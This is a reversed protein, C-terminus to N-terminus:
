QKVVKRSEFGHDNQLNISYVGAAFRSFDIRTIQETSNVEAVLKGTFDTVTIRLNENSGLDITLENSVPNPFLKIETLAVQNDIGSPWITVVITDTGLCGISDSAEVWYTGTIEATFTPLISGDQWEYSFFAGPNLEVPDGNTSTIDDGLDPEPLPKGAEIETEDIIICGNDDTLTLGYTGPSLDQANASSQGDSWAYVYPMEGGSVSTAIAGNSDGICVEHSIDLELML